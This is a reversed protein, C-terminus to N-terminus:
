DPQLVGRSRLDLLASERVERCFDADHQHMVVRIGDAVRLQSVLHFRRREAPGVLLLWTQTGCAACVVPKVSFM